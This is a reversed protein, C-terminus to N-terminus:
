CSTSLFVPDAAAKSALDSLGQISSPSSVCENQAPMSSSCVSGTATEAFCLLLSIGTEDSGCKNEIMYKIKKRGTANSQIAIPPKSAHPAEVPTLAKVPPPLGEDDLPVSQEAEEPQPGQIIITKPRLTDPPGDKM